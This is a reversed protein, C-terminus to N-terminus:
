QQLEKVIVKKYGKENDRSEGLFTRMVGSFYSQYPWVSEIWATHGGHPTYIFAINKNKNMIRKFDDFVYIPDDLCDVCLTPVAVRDVVYVASIRKYYERISLDGRMASALEEQSRFTQKGFLCFSNEVHDYMDEAMGAVVQSMHTSKINGTAHNLDWANGCAVVRAFKCEVGSEGVYRMLANAGCSIGFGYIPLEQAFRGVHELVVDLDDRDYMSPIRKSFSEPVHARRNYVIIHHDKGFDRAIIKCYTADSNGGLGHFVLIVGKIAGREARCKKYDLRCLVGDDWKLYVPEWLCKMFQTVLTSLASQILPGKAWWLPKFQPYVFEKCNYFLTTATTNKFFYEVFESIILLSIWM